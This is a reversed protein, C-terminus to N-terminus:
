PPAGVARVRILHIGEPLYSVPAHGAAAITASGPAAGAAVVRALAEDCAMALTQDLEASGGALAVMEVEALPASVAAGLATLALPDAPVRGDALWSAGGGLLVPLGPARERVKEIMAQVAARAEDVRRGAEAATVALPPLPGPARGVLVALDTLTPATGGFVVPTGSGRGIRTDGGVPAVAVRPRPVDVPVDPVPGRADDGEEIEGGAVLGCRVEVSGADVVVAREAGAARVTGFLACAATSVSGLVPYRRFYEASVRGGGNRAISLPATVGAGHLARRLSECFRGAHEQAAANLVAGNERERLGTRGLEHSLTIAAGPVEEAVIQAARWEHDPRAPSGAATIAFTGIGADGCRRAFERVAAADLPGICRGALSFGGDVVTRWPGVAEAAPRPWGALPGLAAVPRPGIRLVGTRALRLRSTLDVAACVDTVAARSEAPLGALVAGLGAVPTRGATAASTAAVTGDVRLLVAVTTARGLDIGLRM